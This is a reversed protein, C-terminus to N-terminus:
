LVIWMEGNEKSSKPPCVFCEFYGVIYPSNCKALIDIEGMIKSTEENNDPLVKVAVIAQTAIHTARFVQGFSGEGLMKDLLLESSRDQNISRSQTYNNM